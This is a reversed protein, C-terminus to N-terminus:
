LNKKRESPDDLLADMAADKFYETDKPLNDADIYNEMVSLDSPLNYQELYALIHETEIASLQNKLDEDSTLPGSIKESVSEKHMGNLLFATFGIIGIFSAAVALRFFYAPRGSWIHKVKQSGPINSLEEFNESFYGDAVTYTCRSRLGAIVPSLEQIELVAGPDTNADKSIASIVHDSFTDFYGEPVSYPTNFPSNGTEGSIRFSDEHVKEDRKM